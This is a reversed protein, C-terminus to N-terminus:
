TTLSQERMEAEPVIPIGSGPTVHGFKDPNVEAIAAIDGTTFGCFQLLVNGMTSAGHGMVSAGEARLTRVLEVLDTRHTQLGRPNPKIM